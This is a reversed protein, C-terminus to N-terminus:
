GAGGARLRRAPPGDGAGEGGLGASGQHMGLAFLVDRFNLGAARVAVRVEGEALRGRVEPSPLLALNELTGTASIDLHWADTDM